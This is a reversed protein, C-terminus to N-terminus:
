VEVMNRGGKKAKYLMKDAQGIMEELSDLQALCIGISVTFEIRNGDLELPTKQINKRIEDFVHQAHEAAMNAALICFEEGGYRCVIDTERFRKKLLSALHRLVLDGSHHGYTDNIKKFYDIDM